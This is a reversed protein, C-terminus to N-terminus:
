GIFVASGERSPCRSEMSEEVHDQKFFYRSLKDHAAEGSTEVSRKTMRTQKTASRQRILRSCLSMQGVNQPIM